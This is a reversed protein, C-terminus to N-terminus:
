NDYGYDIASGDGLWGSKNETNSYQDTKPPMGGPLGAFYRPRSSQKPQYGLYSPDEDLSVNSELEQDGFEIQEVTEPGLQITLKEILKRITPTALNLPDLTIFKKYYRYADRQDKRKDALMGLGLIATANMADYKIAQRYANEAEDTKRMLVCADGLLCWLSSSAPACGTQHEASEKVEGILEFAEQSRKHLILLKAKRFVCQISDPYLACIEDMTQLAKEYEQLKMYSTALAVSLSTHVDETAYNCSLGNQSSEIAKDWNSHRVWYEAMGLHCKANRPSQAVSKLYVQEAEELQGTAELIPAIFQANADEERLYINLAEDYYGLKFYLEALSKEIARRISKQENPDDIIDRYYEIAEQSRGCRVYLRGLEWLAQANKSDASLADKLTAIADEFHGAQIQLTGLLNWNRQVTRDAAVTEKLEDIFSECLTHWRQQMGRQAYVRLLEVKWANANRHKPNTKIAQEYAGQSETYNKTRYALRAATELLGANTTNKALAKAVLRLGMQQLQLRQAPNLGKGLMEEYFAAGLPAEENARLEVLRGYYHEATPLDYARASTQALRRVSDPDNPQQDIVWKRWTQAKAYAGKGELVDALKVAFYVGPCADMAEELATQLASSDEMKRLIQTKRKHLEPDAPSQLLAQNVEELADDLPENIDGYLPKGFKDEKKASSKVSSQQKRVLGGGQDAKDKGPMAPKFQKSSGFKPTM